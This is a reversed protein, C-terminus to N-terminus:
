DAQEKMAQDQNFKARIEDKVAQKQELKAQTQEKIAHEQDKRAKIKDTRIKGRIRGIVVDYQSYKDAPIKVDDIYLNTLKNDILDFQYTKGDNFSQVSEVLKGSADRKIIDYSNYRQSRMESDSDQANIAVPFVAIALLVLRYKLFKTKM